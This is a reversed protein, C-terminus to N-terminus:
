EVLPERPASYESMISRIRFRFAYSPGKPTHFGRLAASNALSGPWAVGNALGKCGMEEFVTVVDPGDLLEQGM